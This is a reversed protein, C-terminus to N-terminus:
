VCFCVRVCARARAALNSQVLSRRTASAAVQVVCLLCVNRIDMDGAPKSSAIGAVLGDCVQAKARVTVPIPDM